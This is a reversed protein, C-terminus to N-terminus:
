DTWLNFWVTNKILNDGNSQVNAFKIFIQKFVFLYHIHVCPPGLVKKKKLYVKKNSFIEGKKGLGVNLQCPM